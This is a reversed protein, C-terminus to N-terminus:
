KVVMSDDLYLHGWVHMDHNIVNGVEYVLIPVDLLKTALTHSKTYRVYIFAYM